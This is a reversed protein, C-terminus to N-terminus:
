YYKELSQEVAYKIIEKNIPKSILTYADAEIADMKLEKSTDASVFICPIVTRKEEKIFEFTDFGSFDPLHIDLILLHLIEHKAIEVAERGCSALYTTYGEPEFINKLSYRCGEDDDTILIKYNTRNHRLIAMM